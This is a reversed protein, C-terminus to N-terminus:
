PSKRKRIKLFYIAIGAVAAAAIGIAAYLLVDPTATAVEKVNVYGGIRTNDSTLSEGTVTDAVAKIEYIGPALGTTRWVFTLTREAGEALNDVSQPSSVATDNRLVNVNFSEVYDGINKVKVTITISDGVSVTAKNPTCETVAIDHKPPPSVIVTQSLAHTLTLNDTVTLTVTYTAAASYTHEVIEGSDEILDGFKWDWSVITGNPSYSASANFTVVQGAIPSSPTYTFDAVPSTYTTVTVTGDIYENNATDVEGPLVTANAKITYTSMVGSDVDSTNWTFMLTEKAGPVLDTVTQPLAVLQGVSFTANYYYSAVTFTAMTGGVNEATVTVTLLGGRTVTLKSAQVNTLAINPINTFYGDIVEHSIPHGGRDGLKTDYLDLLSESYATVNFRITVLTGSGDLGETTGLPRAIGIFIYGGTQNIQLKWIKYDPFFFGPESDTGNHPALDTANLVNKDYRLKFEYGLLDIVDTVTINVTFEQSVEVATTQSPYVSLKTREQATSPKSMLTTLSLINVLLLVLLIWFRVKGKGSFEFFKKL